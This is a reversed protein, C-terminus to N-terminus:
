YGTGQSAQLPLLFLFAILTLMFVSMMMFARLMVDFMLKHTEAQLRTEVVEMIGRIQERLGGKLERLANHSVLVFNSVVRSQLGASDLGQSTRVEYDDTNCCNLYSRVDPASDIVEISLVCRSECKSLRVDVPFYSVIM